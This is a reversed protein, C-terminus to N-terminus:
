AGPKGTAKFNQFRSSYFFNWLARSKRRLEAMSGSNELVFDARRWVQSDAQQLKLRAKVLEPDMGADAMRKVKIRESATVLISVDMQKDIGWFFLLAADLVVLGKKHRAVERLVRQVLAPHTIKNLKNLNTRSAFALRGLARRDIKGTKTLISRGFAKVLKKYEPTDRNLISWGLQDADIIKAGYRRLENAVTTKGAGMNGGIGVLLREQSLKRDFM